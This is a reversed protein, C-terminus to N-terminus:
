FAMCREGIFCIYKVDRCRQGVNSLLNLHVFVLFRFYLLHKVSMTPQLLHTKYVNNADSKNGGSKIKLRENNTKINLNPTKYQLM